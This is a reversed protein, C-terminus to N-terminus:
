SARHVGDPAQAIFAQARECALELSEFRRGRVCILHEPDFAQAAGSRELVGLMDRDLAALVLRQGHHAARLAADALGGAVTADMGHARRLRLIVVRTEPDRLLPDLTSMLEGAVGFFLPGELQLIRIGPLRTDGDALPQGVACEQWGGHEDHTMEWLVLARARRLFFVVSVGVGLYIATDLSLTWTGLMTVVFALADAWSTRLTRVIRPVDVLDRAVVLLLGALSAIPTHDLLPGFLLLVGIMLAGALMGAVRSRAGSRLNLTSRALSGSIPYGGWLGAVANALGQGVFETSADIRQGSRAALSRAVATSEVLSLVTCAVAVPWLVAMTSLDPLAPAPLGAPIPALDSVVRLGHGQLDFALDAAMGCSMAVIAGPIRRGLRRSLRRMAIVLAATGLAVGVPLLSTHALQPIWHAITDVLTGRPGQTGTINHLQGVGILVGAGTIYGLVVPGSIYDVVSGLRLLGAGLQMLGVMLALTLAVSAPDGGLGTAVAAGVLLSLANSPGTIVHRSSRLLSGVIAPVAAAYLGMAPPLGAITAYALGQPVALFCVTIAASLDSPLDRAHYRSWAPLPIADRWSM